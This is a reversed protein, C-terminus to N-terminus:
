CIDTEVNDPEAESVTLQNDIRSIGPAHMAIREAAERAQWSNVVGTLTVM